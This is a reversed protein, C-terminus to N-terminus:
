QVFTKPLVLRVLFPTVFGILAGAIVDLPFHVGVFVRAVAILVAAIYFWVGWKRDIWFFMLTALTFFAIAHGSPFSPDSAAHSLLPTFNYVVFPRERFFFYNLATKIIGMSVLLSFVSFLTLQLRRRWDKQVFLIVLFIAILIYALYGALFIGILDLLHSKGALGAVIQYDNM